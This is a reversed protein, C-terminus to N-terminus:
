FVLIQVIVCLVPNLIFLSKTMKEVKEDKSRKMKQSESTLYFHNVSIVFSFDMVWTYILYLDNEKWPM